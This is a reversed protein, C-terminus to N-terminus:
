FTLRLCRYAYQAKEDIPLKGAELICTHAAGVVFGGGGGGGGSAPVRTDSGRVPEAWAKTM